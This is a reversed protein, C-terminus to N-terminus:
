QGGAIDQLEYEPLERGSGLMGRRHREEMYEIAQDLREFPPTMGSHADADNPDRGSVVYMWADKARAGSAQLAEFGSQEMLTVTLRGFSRSVADLEGEEWGPLSWTESWRFPTWQPHAEHDFDIKRPMPLPQTEVTERMMARISTIEAPPLHGHKELVFKALTEAQPGMSKGNLYDALANAVVYPVHKIANHADGQPHVCYRDEVSGYGGSPTVEYAPKGRERGPLGALGGEPVLFRSLGESAGTRVVPAKAAPSQSAVEHGQPQPLDNRNPM